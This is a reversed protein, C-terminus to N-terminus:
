ALLPSLPGGQPTREEPAVCVGSTMMGAQLFRRVIRRLRKDATRRALRAMLIDHNGRDFCKEWDLDVVIVRSDAV